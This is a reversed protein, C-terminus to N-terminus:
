AMGGGKRRCYLALMETMDEFTQTHMMGYHKQILEFANYKSLYHQAEQTTINFRKAFVEILM